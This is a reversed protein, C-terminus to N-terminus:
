YTSLNTEKKITGLISFTFFTKGIINQFPLVGWVRSDSSNNRNDGLVFYQDDGLKVPAMNAVREWANTAEIPLYASEDLRTITGNSTIFIKANKIEVTEGPLGIIRKIYKYAPNKPYKFVIVDDRQPTGIKYSVEDVILYDSSHYNPEMSQGSVIFPQFVFYRIPIVILLAVIVLKLIDWINTGVKKVEM